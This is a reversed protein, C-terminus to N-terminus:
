AHGILDRVVRLLDDAEFPKALVADGGYRAPDARVRALYDPSTSLVVVPIGRTRAEANLRELLDWGAREGWALDVLLLDPDLAAIQDFTAPVFNTTTVNYEARQFLLRILDLFDPEGNIAFLHKRGGQAREAEGMPAQEDRGM